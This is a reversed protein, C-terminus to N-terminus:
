AARRVRVRLRLRLRLRLGVRVRLRVQSLEAHVAEHAADIRLQALAHLWEAARAKLWPPADARNLQPRLAQSWLKRFAGLCTLFPELDSPTALGRALLLLLHSLEEERERLAQWPM